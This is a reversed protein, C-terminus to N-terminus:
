SLRQREPPNAAAQRSQGTPLKEKQRGSAPAQPRQKEASLPAQPTQKAQRVHEQKQAAPFPPNEQPQRRMTREPPPFRSMHRALEATDNKSLHGSRKKQPQGAAHQGQAPPARRKKQPQGAAHPERAPSARRKKQPQGAAYPERAPPVRRKEAAAPFPPNEQSPIGMTRGPPPFRSKHRALEATGHESLHGSRKKQPQGAAYPERAPPTPTKEIATRSRVTGSGSAGPPKERVTHRPPSAKKILVAAPKKRSDQLYRFFPRHIRTYGSSEISM